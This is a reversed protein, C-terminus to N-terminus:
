HKEIAAKEAPSLNKQFEKILWDLPIEKSQPLAAQLTQYFQGFAQDYRDFLTEDKILTMRALHYFDDLSTTPLRAQLAELLTLYEQVSVPLKSARLHYFFDTLMHARCSTNWILRSAPGSAACCAICSLTACPATAGCGMTGCCAM